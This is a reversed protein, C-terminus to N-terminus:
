KLFHWFGRSLNTMTKTPLCFTDETPFSLHTRRTSFSEADTPESFTGNIIRANRWADRAVRHWAPYCASSFTTVTLWFFLSIYPLRSSLRFFCRALWSSFIFSPKCSFFLSLSVFFRLFFSFFHSFSRMECAHLICCNACRAFSLHRRTCTLRPSFAVPSFCLSVSLERERKRETHAPRVIDSKLTRVCTPSCIRSIRMLALSILTHPISYRRKPRPLIIRLRLFKAARVCSPRNFCPPDGAAMRWRILERTKVVYATEMALAFHYESPGSASM